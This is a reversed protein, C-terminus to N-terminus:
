RYMVLLTYGIVNFVAHAAIPAVLSGRWEYLAALGLGVFFMVLVLPPQVHVLGFVAASIVGARWFGLRSRLSGHLFGRFFLEEAIPAGVVVVVMGLALQPLSPDGPLIQQDIANPPSGTVLHWVLVILPLIVFAAAVFLGAGLLGGVALDAGARSSRLGLMPLAGPYRVSVWAITFGVWIAQAVLATVLDASGGQGGFVAVIGLTALFTAAAWLLGLPLAEWPQWPPDLRRQPRQEIHEM